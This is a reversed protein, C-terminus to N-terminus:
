KINGKVERIFIIKTNVFKVWAKTLKKQTIMCNSYTCQETTRLRGHRNGEWTVRSLIHQCIYFVWRVSLDNSVHLNNQRKVTFASIKQDQGLVIRCQADKLLLQEVDFVGDNYKSAAELSILFVRLCYLTWKSTLSIHVTVYLEHISIIWTGQNSHSRM